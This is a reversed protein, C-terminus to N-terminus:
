PLSFGLNGSTFTPHIHELPDEFLETTLADFRLNKIVMWGVDGLISRIVGYKSPLLRLPYKTVGSTNASWYANNRPAGFRYECFRDRFGIGFQQRVM